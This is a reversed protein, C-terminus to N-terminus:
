QRRRPRRPRRRAALVRVRAPATHCFHGGCHSRRNVGQNIPASASSFAMRGPEAHDRSCCTMVGLERRVKHQDDRVVAGVADIHTSKLGVVPVLVEVVRADVYLHARLRRKGGPTSARSSVSVSLTNSADHARPSSSGMEGPPRRSRPLARPHDASGHGRKLCGIPSAVCPVLGFLGSVVIQRPSKEILSLLM